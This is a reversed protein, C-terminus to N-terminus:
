DAKAPPDPAAPRNLPAGVKLYMMGPPAFPCEVVPRGAITVDDRVPHERGCGPCVVNM